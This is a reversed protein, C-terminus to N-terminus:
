SCEEGHHEALIRRFVERVRTAETSSLVIEEVVQEPVLELDHANPDDDSVLWREIRILTIIERIVHQMSPTYGRLRPLVECFKV